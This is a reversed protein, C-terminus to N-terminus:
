SAYAQGRPAAERNEEQERQKEAESARAQEPLPLCWGEDLPPEVSDGAV